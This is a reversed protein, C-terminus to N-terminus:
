ITDSTQDTQSHQRDQIHLIYYILVHLSIVLSQYLRRKLNLVQRRVDVEYGKRQVSSTALWFPNDSLVMEIETCLHTSKSAETTIFVM